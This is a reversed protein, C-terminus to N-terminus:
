GIRSQYEFYKKLRLFPREYVHWSLWAIAQTLTVGITLVALLALPGSGFISGSGPRLVFRAMAGMLFIHLVYAGYSYKGFTRLVPNLLVRGILGANERIPSALVILSGFFLTLASYGFIQVNREFQRIGHDKITLIALVPLCLMAAVRAPRKVAELGEPGRAALAWFAGIALTDMRCATFTYVVLPSTRPLMIWRLVPAIIAIGVCLGM